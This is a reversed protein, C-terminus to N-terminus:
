SIEGFALGVAIAMQAERGQIAAANMKKGVSLRTMPGGFSVPLRTASALYQGLGNLLAGGGTIVIGDIATGPNNSSFFVFTNRVSDVLSRVSQGLAEQAAVYEPAVAPAGFGLSRKIEDAQQAGVQTAAAVADTVDQGGAPLIRAMRPQGQQAIIVTTIKAGIDVFAVNRQAVEPTLQCRLLAFASLDVMTPRLGANEVALLNQSVTSKPAAVLMGRLLKVSEGDREATPYFDLMAEDPSMPLLEQVQYPLSGKLQAMPLSPVDVERVVVNASGLGVTVDKTAIKAASVASKIAAGVASVDVVEGGQVLGTPLAQEGYATLTGATGVATSKGSFEVECVRVHTAGIDLGVRKIAM